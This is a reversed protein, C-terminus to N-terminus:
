VGESVVRFETRRNLQKNEPSDNPAVPLSEGYGRAQMRNAAIGAAQLYNVVAEARRQSLDLNYDESADSDTHGAIEIILEPNDQMIQVLRDLERESEPRLTAKDVDYYIHRLVISAGEKLKMLPVDKNLCDGAMDATLNMDEYHYFYSTAKVHMGYEGFPLRFRYFGQEDARGRKVVQGYADIIRIGAHPIVEGSQEDLVVGEFCVSHLHPDTELEFDLRLGNPVHREELAFYRSAARYGEAKANIEYHPGFPLEYRYNGREDTQLKISDAHEGGIIAISAHPISKYTRKDRVKGYVFSGKHKGLYIDQQLDTQPFQVELRKVPLGVARATLTYTRGGKLCYRYRGQEDAKGAEVQDGDTDLVSVIAEPIPKGTDENYVTGWLCPGTAKRAVEDASINRHVNIRQDNISASVIDWDGDGDFDAAAIGANRAGSKMANCEGIIGSGDNLHVNIHHDVTSATVVDPDGDLDFDRVVLDFNHDGSSVCQERAFGEDGLNLHICLQKDHYAAAAIDLRGDLDFDALGIAWIGLGSRLVPGKAFQQQGQNYHIYVRANDGGVVLDPRGDQNLDGAKVVRARYASAIKQSTPFEGKGNGWHIRVGHQNVLAVALDTHGDGNLDAATVDQAMSGSPLVRAKGLGGKGDNLLVCLKGTFSVCAVDTWGDENADLVEIARNGVYAPFTQKKLFNGKGDNYNICVMGTKKDSTLIDVYGDQDMDAVAVSWNQVGARFSYKPVFVTHSIFITSDTGSRNKVQSFAWFPQLICFFLCLPVFFRQTIKMLRLFEIILVSLSLFIVIFYM